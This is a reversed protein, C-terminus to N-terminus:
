RICGVGPGGDSSAAASDTQFDNNWWVNGACTASDDSLDVVTSGLVTNGKVSSPSGVSTVFIGVHSGNVRNNLAVNGPSEIEIGNFNGNLTNGAVLNHAGNFIAVGGQEGDVVGNRVIINSEVFNGNSFNSIDVGVRNNDAIYNGVVHIGTAAGIGIGDIGSATVVSAEVRNNSGSIAIGFACASTATVARVQSSTSYLVIGDNFGSVTGGEIQVGSLGAPAVIGSIAKTLDCDKSALTHGALHFIVNSAAINVGNAFTGSCDLDRDLVYAGAMSLTQGCTTVSTLAHAPRNALLLAALGLGTRVLVKNSM